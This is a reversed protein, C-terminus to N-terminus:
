QTKTKLVLISLLITEFNDLTEFDFINKKTIAGVCKLWHWKNDHRKELSAM